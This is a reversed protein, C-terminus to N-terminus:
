TDHKEPFCLLVVIVSCFCNLYIVTIVYPLFSTIDCNFPTINDRQGAALTLNRVM